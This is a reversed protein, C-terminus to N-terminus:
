HRSLWMAAEYMLWITVGTSALGIIAIFIAYLGFGGILAKEGKTFM